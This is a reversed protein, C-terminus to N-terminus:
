EHRTEQTRLLNSSMASFPASTWAFICSFLWKVPKKVTKLGSCPRYHLINAMGAIKSHAPIDAIPKRRRLLVLTKAASRNTARFYAPTELFRPIGTESLVEFFNARLILGL